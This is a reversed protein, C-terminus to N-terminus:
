AGGIATTILSFREGVARTLLQYRFTDQMAQMQETALDVNNGNAGRQATSATVEPVIPGETVTGSDVASRLAGEFDVKSAIFGPTDMNAINDATVRQRFALGDLADGLVAAVPDSGSILM